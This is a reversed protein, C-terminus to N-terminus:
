FDISPREPAAALRGGKKSDTELRTQSFTREEAGRQRSFSPNFAKRRADGESVLEKAKLKGISVQWRRRWRRLWQWRSKPLATKEVGKSDIKNRESWVNTSAPALGKTLNQCFGVWSTLQHERTFKHGSSPIPPPTPSVMDMGYAHEERTAEFTTRKKSVRELATAMNDISVGHKELFM